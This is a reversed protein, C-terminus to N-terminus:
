SRRLDDGALFPATFSPNQKSGAEDRNLRLRQRTALQPTTVFWGIAHTAGLWRRRRNGHGVTTRGGGTGSSPTAVSWGVFLEIAAARRCSSSRGRLEDPAEVRGIRRCWFAPPRTAPDDRAELSRLHLADNLSLDVVPHDATGAPIPHVM